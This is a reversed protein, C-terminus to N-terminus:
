PQWTSNISCFYGWVEGRLMGKVKGDFVKGSNLLPSLSVDENPTSAQEDGEASPISWLHSPLTPSFPVCSRGRQPHLGPCGPSAPGRWVLVPPRPGGGVIGPARILRVSRSSPYLGAGWHQPSGPVLTPPHGESLPPPRTQRGQASVVPGWLLFRPRSLLAPPGGM